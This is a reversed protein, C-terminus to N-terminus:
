LNKIQERTKLGVEEFIQLLAEYTDKGGLFDWYDKGILVAQDKKMNFIKSPMSWNYDSRKSGGPNYFLAFYVDSKENHAKLLFMDKKVKETQDLNPKVTKISIFIEREEKKLWLDSIVRRVLTDGKNFALIKKLERSWNPQQEGERLSSLIRDIEDNAGKYINAMTEKQREIEYGNGKAILSSIEEIAGQGFSTSFSREFASANVIEETLLAVHFPRHSKNKKLRIFTDNVCKLLIEKVENKIEQKM